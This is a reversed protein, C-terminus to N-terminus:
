YAVDDVEGGAPRGGQVRVSVLNPLCVLVGGSAGVAGRKCLGNPCPSSAFRVHSDKIEIVSEGLPGAVRVTRDQDLPYVSEGGEASIRVAARGGGKSGLLLFCVGGFLLLVVAAVM